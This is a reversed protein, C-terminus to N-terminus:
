VFCCCCCCGFRRPIDLSCLVLCSSVLCLSKYRHQIPCGLLSFLTGLAPLLTLSVGEGWSGSLGVLVGLCVVMVRICLGLESGHLSRSQKKLRQSSSHPRSVQNQPGYEIMDELGRASTIRGKGRRYPESLEM